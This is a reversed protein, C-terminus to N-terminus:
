EIYVRPLRDTLGCTVEYNITDVYEAGKQVSNFLDGDRGFITVKTGIPLYGDVRIMCQDMCIRGVIPAQKGNVLCNFGQFKRILGDAYGIPLTAIWEKSSTEYTAGYGIKEGKEVGKIHIIETELTLAQKLKFPEDLENGSPNMGYMADGYRVLNSKWADHWLATASNSTHIYPIDEGFIALAKSFRKQQLEFYQNDKSDAKSFHTFLGEFNILPNSKFLENALKMEESDNLGIRGMGTDIKLHIKIEKTVRKDLEKLWELNTATLTIDNELVIDLYKLSVYGMVLIPETMENKRLEIAENLNSVCLGTAGAEIAAKAVEIAGHGYGNAKVVAYLSTGHDLRKLEEKVNHRIHNLNVVVQSPGYINPEM